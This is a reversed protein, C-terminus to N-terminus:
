SAMRGKSLAIGTSKREKEKKREKKREREKLEPGQIFSALILVPECWALLNLDSAYVMLYRFCSIVLHCLASWELSSADLHVGSHFWLHPTSSLSLSLSLSDPPLSFVFQAGTGPRKISTTHQHSFGHSVTVMPWLQCQRHCQCPFVSTSVPQNSYFSRGSM